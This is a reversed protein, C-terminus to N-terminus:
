RPLTFRRYRKLRIASDRAAKLSVDPYVGFALTRQKKFLRYSLRWYKAGNPRVELFLGGGDSLKFTKDRPASAKVTSANLKM